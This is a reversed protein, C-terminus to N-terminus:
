DTFVLNSFIEEMRADPYHADFYAEIRNDATEGARRQSWRLVCAATMV